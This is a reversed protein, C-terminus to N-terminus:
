VDGRGRLSDEGATQRGTLELFAAEFSRREPRLESVELGAAVLKRAIEPARGGEASLKLTGDSLEVGEVGALNAAIRAAADAPEARVLLCSAGGRLEEVTGEAVLKGGSVVGVRDCLREVELLNHSSLIMTRGTGGLARILDRMEAQGVPDLGNSPEDLILLEPDKLLAAAVGLRQKMGLSYNGFRDKARPALRVARLAEEVRADPVGARRAVSRLNDRGSLFPYFAPSEVIAGIRALGEPAGPRVGLVSAAGSTPRVLGLLMRLTTTKGAGNPGLLGYIEGLHVELDLGDVAVVRSGYRKTLGRTQVVKDGDV